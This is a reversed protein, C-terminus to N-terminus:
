GKTLDAVNEAAEKEEIACLVDYLKRYTAQSGEKKVWQTLAEFRQDEACHYKGEIDVILQKGVGLQTTVAKWNPLIKAIKVIDVDKCKTDM